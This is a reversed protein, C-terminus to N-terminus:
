GKPTWRQVVLVMEKIYVGQLGIEVDVGHILFCVKM